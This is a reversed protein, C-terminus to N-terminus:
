PTVAVAPADGWLRELQYYSRLSPHFVHVIFDVYDLVVWRGQQLGEVAQARLGDRELGALVHEAVSRVHTDSTGSAVVFYDTMDTLGHLDLLMVDAARNEVCITAARRAARSNPSHRRSPGARM